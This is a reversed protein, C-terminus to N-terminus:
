ARGELIKLILSKLEESDEKTWTRLPKIHVFGLDEDPDDLCIIRIAFIGNPEFLVEVAYYTGDITGLGVQLAVELSKEVQFRQSILCCTLIDPLLHEVKSQISKKIDDPLEEVWEIHFDLYDTEESM